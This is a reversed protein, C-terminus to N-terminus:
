PVTPITLRSPSIEPALSSMTRQFSFCSPVSASRPVSSIEPQSEAKDVGTYAACHVIATPQYRQVYEKVAQGDTLDFDQMDVGRCEIGRAELQRVTDWGLQGAYGTVLVKM